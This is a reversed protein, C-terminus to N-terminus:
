LNTGPYQLALLELFAQRNRVWGREDYCPKLILACSNVIHDLVPCPDMNLPTSPFADMTAKTAVILLNYSAVLAQKSQTEFRSHGAVSRQTNRINSIKRVKAICQEVAYKCNIKALRFASQIREYKSIEIQGNGIKKKRKAEKICNYSCSEVSPSYSGM